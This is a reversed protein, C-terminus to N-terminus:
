GKCDYSDTGPACPGPDDCYDDFASPCANKGNVCVEYSENCYSGQPCSLGKGCNAGCVGAQLCATNPHDDLCSDTEASASCTTTCLGGLLDDTEDYCFLGPKCAHSADCAQGVVGGTTTAGGGGGRGSGGCSLTAGVATALLSLLRAWRGARRRATTGRGLGTKSM